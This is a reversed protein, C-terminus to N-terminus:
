FLEAPGAHIQQLSGLAVDCFDPERFKQSLFRRHSQFPDRLSQVHAGFRM